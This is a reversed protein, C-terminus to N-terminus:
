QTRDERKMRLLRAADAITLGEPLDTSFLQDLHWQPLYAPLWEAFPKDNGRWLSVEGQRYITTQVLGTKTNRISRLYYKM